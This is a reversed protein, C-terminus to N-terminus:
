TLFDNYFTYLVNCSIRQETQLHLSSISWETSLAKMPKNLSTSGWAIGATKWGYNQGGDYIPFIGSYLALCWYYLYLFLDIFVNLSTPNKAARKSLYAERKPSFYSALRYFKLPLSKDSTRWM